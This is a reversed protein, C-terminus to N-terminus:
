HCLTGTTRPHIIAPPHKEGMTQGNENTTNRNEGTPKKKRNNTARKGFYNMKKGRDSAM